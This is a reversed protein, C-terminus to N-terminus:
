SSTASRRSGPRRGPARSPRDGSDECFGRVHVRVLPIRARRASVPATWTWGLLATGSAAADIRRSRGRGLDRLDPHRRPRSREVGTGRRRAPRRGRRPRRRRGSGRRRRRGDRARRQQATPFWPVRDAQNAAGFLAALAEYDSADASTGPGFGPSRRREWRWAAVQRSPREDHDARRRVQAEHSREVSKHIVKWTRRHEARARPDRRAHWGPSRASSSATAPWGSRPRATRRRARRPDRLGARRRPPLRQVPVDRRHRRRRRLRGRRGRRRRPGRALPHRPTDVLLAGGPLEFLERHTTTHRGRSDSDRVEATAQRDEGLLANVLTSKGVGSSGLIAATTGPRLHARLTTSGPAPGPRSRSRRSARRSRTSPSWGATWTTPWTPRTSSSSRAHDREVLRGRPLARHPAPQLRQRPRRRAPRRRHERGHDARRRPRAGRRSADAAM